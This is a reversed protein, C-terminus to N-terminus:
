CREPRGALGQSPHHWLCHCCHSSPPMREHTADPPCPAQWPHVPLPAPRAQSLLLRVPLAGGAPHGGPQAPGRPAAPCGPAVAAGGAAGGRRGRVQRLLRRPVARGKGAQMAPAGQAAQSAHSSCSTSILCPTCRSIAASMCPRGNAKYTPLQPQSKM